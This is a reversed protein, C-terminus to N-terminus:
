VNSFAKRKRRELAERKKFTGKVLELPTIGQNLFQETKKDM